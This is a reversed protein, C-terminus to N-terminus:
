SRDKFATESLKQMISPATKVFSHIDNLWEDGNELLISRVHEGCVSLLQLRAGKVENCIWPQGNLDANQMDATTRLSTDMWNIASQKYKRNRIVILAFGIVAVLIEGVDAIIGMMIIPYLSLIAWLLPFFLVSIHVKKDVFLLVGFTFVVVPCPAVGFIPGEPFGHELFFGILPYIVLAYLIFLLGTYSYCNRQIRYNFKYKSLGIILLFVGQLIWLVGWFYYQKQFKSFFLLETIAGNWIWLIALITTNIEDSLKWKKISNIIIIIALVYSIIQAPWIDNNYEAMRQFFLEANM